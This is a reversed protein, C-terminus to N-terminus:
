SRKFRGILRSFIGEAPTAASEEEESDQPYEGWYLTFGMREGEGEIRLNQANL